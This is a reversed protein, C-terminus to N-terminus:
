HHEAPIKYNGDGVKVAAAVTGFGVVSMRSEIAMSAMPSRHPARAM